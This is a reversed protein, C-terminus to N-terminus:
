LEVIGGDMIRFKEVTADDAPEATAICIEDTEILWQNLAEELISEEDTYDTLVVRGGGVIGMTLVPPVSILWYNKKM